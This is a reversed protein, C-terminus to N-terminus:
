RPIRVHRERYDGQDAKTHCAACNAARKVAPSAWTAAAVEDHERLFWALRTIRDQPPSPRARKGSGANASLWDALASTTAPKLSADTGFHENMGALLRRWSAAPLMAPPYALHCAGCEQTYAPLQPVPARAGDDAAAGLAAGALAALLLASLRTPPRQSM